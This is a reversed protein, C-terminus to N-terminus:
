RRDAGTAHRAGRQRRGAHRREPWREEATRHLSCQLRHRVCFAREFGFQPQFYRDRHHHGGSGSDRESRARGHGDFFRNYHRRAATRQGYVVWRNRHDFQDISQEHRREIAARRRGLATSQLALQYSPRSRRDWISRGRGPGAAGSSNIASALANLSNTAPTITYNSTGVTLTFSSAPSISQTTPDTVGPPAARPAPLLVRSRSCRGYLTGPLASGTVNATVISSDGVTAQLASSGTGSSIGQLATQLSNFLGGLTSLESTEGSITTQDAQLAQM